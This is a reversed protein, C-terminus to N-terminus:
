RSRLFERVHREPGARAIRQNNADVQACYTQEPLLDVASEPKEPSWVVDTPVQSVQRLVGIRHPAPCALILEGSVHHTTNTM